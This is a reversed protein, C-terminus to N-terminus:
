RIKKFRQQEADASQQENEERIESVEKANAADDEETMVEAVDEGAPTFHKYVRPVFYHSEAKKRTEDDGPSIQSKVSKWHCRQKRDELINFVPFHRSLIFSPAEKNKKEESQEDHIDVPKAQHQLHAKVEESTSLHRIQM